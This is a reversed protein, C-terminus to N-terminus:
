IKMPMILGVFGTDDLDHIVVPKSADIFDLQVRPCGLNRLIDVFYSANFGIQLLEGSYDVPVSIEAEGLEPTNAKIQLINAELVLRIQFSPAETMVMVQTFANLLLERDVEIQILSETPIIKRYEPFKGELLRSSLEANGIQFFIDRQEVGIKLEDDGEIIRQLERIAKAHVVIDGSDGSGLTAPAPLKRTVAALRRGDTGIISFEDGDVTFCLGNYIYRNDEQSISYLTKQLMESILSAPMSSLNKEPIQTINPFHSRDSGTMKFKAAQSGSGELKVQYADGAEGSTESDIETAFFKIDESILKKAIESMKKARVILEGSEGSSTPVSIRVTSEMDSATINLKDSEISLLVNSLLTQMDRGPVIADIKAM